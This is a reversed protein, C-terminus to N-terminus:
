RGFKDVIDEKMDVFTLWIYSLSKVVPKFTEGDHNVNASTYYDLCDWFYRPDPDADMKNLPYRAQNYWDEFCIAWSEALQQVKTM